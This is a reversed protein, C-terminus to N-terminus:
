RAEFGGKKAKYRMVAGFGLGNACVWPMPSWLSWVNSVEATM